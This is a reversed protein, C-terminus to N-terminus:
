MLRTDNSSKQTIIEQIQSIGQQIQRMITVSGVQAAAVLRSDLISKQEFLEQTTMSAWKDARIQQVPTKSIPTRNGSVDIPKEDTM